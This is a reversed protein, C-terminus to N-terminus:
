ASGLVLQPSASTPRGARRRRPKPAPQIGARALLEAHRLEAQAALGICVAASEDESVKAGGLMYSAVVQYRRLAGARDRPAGAAARVTAPAIAMQRIGPYWHEVACALWGRCEGMTVLSQLNPHGRHAVVDEIAVVDPPEQDSLQARLADTIWRMRRGWPWGDPPSFRRTWEVRDGDFYAAGCDLSGQDIALLRV